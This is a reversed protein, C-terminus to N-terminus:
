DSVWSCSSSVRTSVCMTHPFGPDFPSENEIYAIQKPSLAIELAELNSKLQEVKRGGIVPFVYPTKQM